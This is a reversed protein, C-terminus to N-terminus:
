RASPQSRRMADLAKRVGEKFTIQPARGLETCARSADLISVPVDFHHATESRVADKVGRGSEPSDM